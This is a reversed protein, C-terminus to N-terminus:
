LSNLFTITVFYDLKSPYECIYGATSNSTAATSDTVISNNLLRLIGKLGATQNGTKAVVFTINDTLV